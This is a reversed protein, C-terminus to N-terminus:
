QEVEASTRTPEMLHVQTSMAHMCTLCTSCVNLFQLSCCGM